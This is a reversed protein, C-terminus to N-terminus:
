QRHGTKARSAVLSSMATSGRHLAWGQLNDLNSEAVDLSPIRYGNRM